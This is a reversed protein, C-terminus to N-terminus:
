VLCKRSTRYAHRSNNIYWPATTPPTASTISRRQIVWVPNESSTYLLHFYPTNGMYRWVLLEGGQGGSIIHTDTLLFPFDFASTWATSNQSNSPERPFILNSSIVSGTTLSLIIFVTERLKTFHDNNYRGCLLVAHSGNLQFDHVKTYPAWDNSRKLWGERLEHRWVEGKGAEIGVVVQNVLQAVMMDGRVRIKVAERHKVKWKRGTGLEEIGDNGDRVLKPAIFDGRGPVKVPMGKKDMGLRLLAGAKTFERVDSSAVYGGAAVALKAPGISGVTRRPRSNTKDIKNQGEQLNWLHVNKVAAKWTSATIDTLRATPPYGLEIAIPRYLADNEAILNHLSRSTPPSSYLLLPTSLKSTTPPPPPPLFHSLIELLLETPLKPLSM